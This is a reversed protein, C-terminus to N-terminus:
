ALVPFSEPEGPLRNIRLKCVTRLLKTIPNEALLSFTSPFPILVKDSFLLPAGFGHANPILKHESSGGVTATGPSSTGPRYPQGHDCYGCCLFLSFNTACKVLKGEFKYNKKLATNILSLWLQRSFFFVIWFIMKGLLVSDILCNYTFNLESIWRQFNFSNFYSFLLNRVKKHGELYIDTQGASKHRSTDVPSGRVCMCTGPEAWACAMTEWCHLSLGDGTLLVSSHSLFRISGFPSADTVCYNRKHM